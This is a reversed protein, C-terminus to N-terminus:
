PRHAVGVLPRAPEAFRSSGPRLLRASDPAPRHSACSRGRGSIELALAFLDALIRHSNWDRDAANLRHSRSARDVLVGGLENISRRELTERLFVSAMVPLCPLPRPAACSNWSNAPRM